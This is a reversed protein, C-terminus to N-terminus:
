NPTDWLQKNHTIAINNEKKIQLEVYANHGTHFIRVGNMVNVNNMPMMKKAVKIGTYIIAIEIKEEQLTLKNLCYTARNTQLVSNLQYTWAHM